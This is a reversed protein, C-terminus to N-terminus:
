EYRLADVTNLQSARYAPWIGSLSGAICAFLLCGIYLQSPLTAQLLTTGLQQTAIYAITKSVLTGLLVGVLGGILGLIGSEILFLILISTNSAGLAKMTGIEKTRELVSTFMTNAIGIGGVLLSITAVAGLFATIISLVTNFSGLVEEPTLINFDRNEKKVGRFALLRREVREAVDRLQTTDSVQIMINDIRTPIAFLERFPELPLLVLRDDGPNGRPEMVGVVTCPVGNLEITDGAHVPKSFISNQLFQSGVNCERQERKLRKGELVEYQTGEYFLAEDKTPFGVAQTYRIENKFKVQVSAAVFYTVAKVGPVQDIAQIDGTTLEVAGSTGPGALQGRPQIFFKDTGLKQFQNEIAGQLGLSLSILMFITAVAIIIGLMTLLSRMKRKVLNRYALIFFDSIM